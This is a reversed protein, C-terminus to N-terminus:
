ARIAQIKLEQYPGQRSGGQAAYIQSMILKAGLKSVEQSPPMTLLEFNTAISDWRHRELEFSEFEAFPLVYECDCVRKDKLM